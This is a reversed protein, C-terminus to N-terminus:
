RTVPSVAARISDSFGKLGATLVAATNSRKSLVVAIGAVGVIAVLVGLARDAM